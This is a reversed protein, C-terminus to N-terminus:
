CECLVFYKRFHFGKPSVYDEAQGLVTWRGFKSGAEIM